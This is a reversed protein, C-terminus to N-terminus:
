QDPKPFITLEDVSINHLIPGKNSRLLSVIRTEDNCELVFFVGERGDLNVRDVLQLCNRMHCSLAGWARGLKLFLCVRLADSCTTLESEIGNM